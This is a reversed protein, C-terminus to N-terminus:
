LRHILERALLEIVDNVTQSLAFSDHGIKGPPPVRADMLAKFIRSSGRRILLEADKPLALDFQQVIAFTKACGAKPHTWEVRSTPELM